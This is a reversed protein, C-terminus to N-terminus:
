APLINPNQIQKCKIGADQEPGGGQALIRHHEQSHTQIHIANDSEIIM